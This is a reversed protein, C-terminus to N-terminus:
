EGGKFCVRKRRWGSGGAATKGRCFERVFLGNKKVDRGGTLAFRRGGGGWISKKEQTPFRPGV